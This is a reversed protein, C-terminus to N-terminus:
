KSRDQGSKHRRLRWANRAYHWGYEVIELARMDDDGVGLGEGGNEVVRVSLGAVFLVDAVRRRHHYMYVASGGGYEARAYVRAGVIRGVDTCDGCMHSLGYSCAM